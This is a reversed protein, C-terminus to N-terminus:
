AIERKKIRTVSWAQLNTLLYFSALFVFFRFDLERGGEAAPFTPKGKKFFYDAPSEYPFNHSNFFEGFTYFNPDSSHPQM